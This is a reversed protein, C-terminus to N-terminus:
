KEGDEEAEEGPEIRSVEIVTDDDSTDILKVGSTVRKQTKIGNVKLRITKENRTIIMIEDDPKVPIAKVLNGTRDTKKFVLIGSTGRHHVSFESIPTRKGIGKESVTLIEEDDQAVFGTIIYEGDKLRMARVGRSTRGTPRVESTAFVSAKGSNSIAVINGEGSVAEVSVVEDDDVLSIIRIGSSRMDLIAEAPTRKIFGNRTLIVLHSERSEPAKMIQEVVEGEQLPVYSAATVGVSKRSKKEIEYALTRLVRGTNTFMFISDHSSCSLITKVSDEKRTSTIIGKGGRRQARYEELSVRKLLSGESLIIVDDEEPVLDAITRTKIERFSIKTRRKDGYKKSLERLEEKILNRRLDESSLIKELDQIKARVDRLEEEVKSIELATLRQLRLELISNAQVDDIGLKSILDARAAPVDKASRIISIVDDISELAKTLAMLIHERERMKNLDFSSRKVIVELRHMIYNDVLGKLNLTRPQNNVLVLNIIGISSELETHEYLQNLILNRMDDDRVKIVVRMGTRDSEDRIDTIGKLIENKVQEAVNQIFIAKNVGYPLSKIVIHKPESLDVEGQSVVKGRGTLYADMLEQSYFSIGGGPFDPGKIYKLLEKVEYDRHDLAYTIANCVETLNHPVMNTAMGVAIGSSGNILLNPVKTPFYEPEELSGDFNLRFPVTNKEIDRVMEESLETLRAETYRMAAPADGDISGFNGQGDVLLYRMSFDQAMRALAEYIAMDGHPHYKGMTEGVIRACKKYPKDHNVNLESMSYLIRRQVPKLGDRVEPIARSVIVSMAYELYSTKIENEIPRKEM